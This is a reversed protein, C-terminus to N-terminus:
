IKKNYQFDIKKMRIKIKKLIKRWPCLKYMFTKKVILLEKMSNIFLNVTM